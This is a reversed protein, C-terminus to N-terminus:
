LLIRAVYIHPRFLNPTPNSISLAIYPNTAISADTVAVTYIVMPAQVTAPSTVETKQQLVASCRTGTFIPTGFITYPVGSFSVVVFYTAIARPFEIINATPAPMDLYNDAWIFNNFATGLTTNDVICAGDSLMSGVLSSRVVPKFLEIEYTVWLDGVANGTTQMGQVCVHTKAMDFLLPEDSPTLASSHIYHISFPNEAPDCEIPHVVSDSPVTETSWYENLVEQKTTPPEETARYTTQLMVSGLAANTSAVASGSTPLYHYVMGRVKYQQYCGALRSLWPFTDHLGPNLVLEQQVQFATSSFVTTVFERHRVIISQATSHMMPISSGPSLISNKKVRYDGSGLWKSIAAGLSTGVAGGMTPNGFYGGLAAGGAGGLSRLAQGLLTVDKKKKASQQQTRNLM